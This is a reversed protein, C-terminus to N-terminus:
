SVWMGEQCAPADAQPRRARFDARSKIQHCRVCLLQVNGIKAENEYFTLRQFSGLAHHAHGRPIKCDFELNATNGCSVCRGGLSQRLLM